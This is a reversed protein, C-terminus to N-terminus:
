SPKFASGVSTHGPMRVAHGSPSELGAAWAPANGQGFLSFTGFTDAPQTAQDPYAGLLSRVGDDSPTALAHVADEYARFSRVQAQQLGTSDDLSAAVRSALYRGSLTLLPLGAWLADAGTTHSNYSLTDVALACGRARMLHETKPLAQGGLLRMPRVGAAQLEARLNRTTVGYPVRAKTVGTLLMLRTNAARRMAGAWVGFVDPSVKMLQNFNALTLSSPVPADAPPEPLPELVDAYLQAHDNLQYCRPLLLLRESYFSRQSPPVLVADVAVYHISRDGATLAPERGDARGSRPVPSTHLGSWPRM